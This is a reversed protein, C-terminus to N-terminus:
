RDAVVGAVGRVRAGEEDAAAFRCGWNLNSRAEAQGAMAAAARARTPVAMTALFFISNLTQM